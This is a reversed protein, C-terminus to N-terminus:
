LFDCVVTKLSWFEADAEYNLQQMDAASIKGSLEKIATRIQPSRELGNRTFWDCGLWPITAHCCIAHCCTAYFV